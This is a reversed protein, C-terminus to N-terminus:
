LEGSLLKNHLNEIEKWFEEVFADNINLENLKQKTQKVYDICTGKEGTAKICMEARKKISKKGIYTFDRKNYPFIAEVEDGNEVQIKKKPFKFHSGERKKLYNMVTDEDQEEIRSYFM